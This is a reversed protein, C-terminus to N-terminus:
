KEQFEKYEDPLEYEETQIYQEDENFINKGNQYM